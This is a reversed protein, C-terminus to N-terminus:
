RGACRTSRRRGLRPRSHDPLPRRRATRALSPRRHRVSGVALDQAAVAGAPLDPRPFERLEIPQRPATMVAALIRPSVRNVNDKFPHQYLGHRRHPQDRESAAGDDAALRLDILGRFRPAVEDADGELLLEDLRVRERAVRQRLQEPLRDVLDVQLRELVAGAISCVSTLTARTRCARSRSRRSRTDTRRRADPGREGDAAADLRHGSM